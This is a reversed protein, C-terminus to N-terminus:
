VVHDKRQAQTEPENTDTVPDAIPEAIGPRLLASVSESLSEGRLVHMVADVVVPTLLYGHRFLGNVRICGEEQLIAPLNDPLAPRCRAVALEVSAEAFGSHVSYLASLLELSSRVTVPRDSDSEIETAGVVFRQGARPAIYLRYRPHMLRICHSLEVEPAHVRMIEGRVGRLAPWQARAGLGRCDLVTDFDHGGQATSIRGADVSTVTVPRQWQVSLAHLAQELADLLQWNDLCAEQKLWLGRRFERRIGPVAANLFHSDVSAVCEDDAGTRALLLRQFERMSGQDAEHALVLTGQQYLDVAVASDQQLESLWRPWIALGQLGWQFVAEDTHAAESWPALMAAAVWAASAEGVADADFLTVRHGERALRWACVRGLLGAGAIGINLSASM